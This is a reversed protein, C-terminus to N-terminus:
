WVLEGGFQDFIARIVPNEKRKREMYEHPDFESSSEQEEDSEMGDRVVFQLAQLPADSVDRLHKLVYEQQSSLVRRHFDNPVAIVAQEDRYGDPRAHHLLSWVQIKDNKVRELVEPWVSEIPGVDSTDADITDSSETSEAPPAAAADSPHGNAGRNSKGTRKLAPKGLVDSAQNSAKSSKPGSERPPTSRRATAQANPGGSPPEIAAQSSRDSGRAKKKPSAGPRKDAPASDAGPTSKGGDSPLRGERALTDLRDLKELAGRLDAALTISAMKLLATELKLRPQSSGKLREEADEALTLLRLLDVETFSQAAEVYRRRTDEPAEILTPDEMTRAVLLNRFHEALGTLFEQLDHGSGVTREVLRLMGAADQESIRDSVDFYLDVKVVGLAQALEDYHIDSGCVSVAQDFVSLADRLAGDGKRAILMLSAEDASIDEETCIVNLRDVIEPVAIRRFDFRQCRSLITPLVKHPETTAFIFLVHPPPEELTKLLANFASASLMHVEDIIYVKKRGGQPPVRVTDRLERIDDVRNNSAADIEIINLSRGEELTRCSECRRCPEVDDEREEFPTTCNIAKALIRAATTKGVGRPGSFLYAHALRDLRIANKLTESVHEQAVLEGFTQPRYKRATVLYRQVSM